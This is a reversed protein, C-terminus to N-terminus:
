SSLGFSRIQCTIDVCVGSPLGAVGLVGRRHPRVRGWLSKNRSPMQSRNRSPMQCRNDQRAGPSGGSPRRFGLCSGVGKRTPPSPVAKCRPCSLRCGKCHSPPTFFPRSPWFFLPLGLVWPLFFRPSRSFFLGRPFFLPPTKSRAPPPFGPPLPMERPPM